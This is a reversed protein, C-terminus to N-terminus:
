RLHNGIFLEYSTILGILRAIYKVSFCHSAISGCRGLNFLLPRGQFFLWKTKSPIRHIRLVPARHFSKGSFYGLGLVHQLRSLIHSSCPTHSFIQRIKMLSSSLLFRMWHASHKISPLKTDALFPPGFDAFGLPALARLEHHHCVALTNRQSHGNMRGAWMLYFDNVLRNILQALLGFTQDSVFRIIRVLKTLIEFLLANLENSRRSLVLSLLKLVASRKPTVLAAPLNLSRNRPDAIVPAKDRTPFPVVFHILSKEM